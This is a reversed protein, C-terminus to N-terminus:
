YNKIIKKITFYSSVVCIFFSFLPIAFFITFDDFISVDYVMVNNSIDNILSNIQSLFPYMTLITLFGLLSGMLGALIGIKAFSFIVRKIIFNNSAGILMLLNITNRNYMISTHTGYTIIYAIIILILLILFCWSILSIQILSMSLQSFEPNKMLILFSSLLISKLYCLLTIMILLYRNYFADHSIINAPKPALQKIRKKEESQNLVKNLLNM